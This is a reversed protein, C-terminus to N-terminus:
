VPLYTCWLEHKLGLSSPSVRSSDRDFMERGTRGEFGGLTPELVLCVRM